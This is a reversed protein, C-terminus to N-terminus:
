AKTIKQRLVSYDTDIEIKASDFKWHLEVTAAVNYIDPLGVTEGIKMVLGKPDLFLVTDADFLTSGEYTVPPIREIGLMKGAKLLYERGSISSSYKSSLTNDINGGVFVVGKVADSGDYFENGLKLMQEVLSDVDTYTSDDKKICGESEELYSNNGGFGSVFFQRDYQKLLSSMAIANLKAVDPEKEDKSYKTIIKFMQQFYQKEISKLMFMAEESNTFLSEKAIVDKSNIDLQREITGGNRNDIKVTRIGLGTHFAQYMRQNRLTNLFVTQDRNAYIASAM